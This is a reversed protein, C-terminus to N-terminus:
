KVFSLYDYEMFLSPDPYFYWDVHDYIYIVLFNTISESSGTEDHRSANNDM